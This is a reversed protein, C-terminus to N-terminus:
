GLYYSIRFGGTIEFGLQRYLAVAPENTRKVFLCAGKGEAAIRRLLEVMVARGLGRNRLAPVTYVGGIQDYGRGRANTGAKAVAAGGLEAVYLIQDRLARRLNARCLRPVHVAPDLLVEEKEYDRQLPYLGSLDSLVARRVLLGPPVSAGAQGGASGPGIPAPIKMLHYSVARGPPRGIHRETYSVSPEEGMITIGSPLRRFLGAPLSPSSASLVPLVLGHPAMMLAETIRAGSQHVEVTEYDRSDLHSTFTVCSWEVPLILAVLAALDEGTAARWGDASM